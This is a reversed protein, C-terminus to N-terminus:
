VTLGFSPCKNVQELQYSGHSHLYAKTDQMEEESTFGYMDAMLSPTVLERRHGQAAGYVLVGYGWSGVETGAVMPAVHALIRSEDFMMPERYHDEMLDIKQAIERKGFHRLPIPDRVAVPIFPICVQDTVQAPM